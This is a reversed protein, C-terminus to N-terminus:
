KKLGDQKEILTISSTTTTGTPYTYTLSGNKKVTEAINIAVGMTIENAKKIDEETRLRTFENKQLLVNWGIIGILIIAIGIKTITKEM